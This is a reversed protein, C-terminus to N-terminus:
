MLDATIINIEYILIQCGTSSFLFGPREQQIWLLSTAPYQLVTSTIPVCILTFILKLM